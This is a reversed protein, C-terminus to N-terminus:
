NKSSSYIHIKGDKYYNYTPLYGNSDPNKRFIEVRYYPRKISENIAQDQTLFIIIDEWDSGKIM